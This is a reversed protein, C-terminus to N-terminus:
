RRRKRHHPRTSTIPKTCGPRTHLGSESSKCLKVLTRMQERMRSHWETRLRALINRAALLEADTLQPWVEEQSESIEEIEEM